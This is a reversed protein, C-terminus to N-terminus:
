RAIREAGTEPCGANKERRRDNVYDRVAIEDFLKLERRAEDLKWQALERERLKEIVMRGKAAEVLRARAQVEQEELGRIVQQEELAAQRQAQIWREELERLAFRVGKRQNERVSEHRRRIDEEIEQVRRRSSELRRQIDGLERQREDEIRQRQELVPQLSFRFAM